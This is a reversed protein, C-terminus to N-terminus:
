IVFMTASSFVNSKDLFCLNGEVAHAVKSKMLQDLSHNLEEVSIFNTVYFYVYKDEQFSLPLEM